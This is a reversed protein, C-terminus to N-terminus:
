REGSFGGIPEREPLPTVELGHQTARDLLCAAGSLAIWIVVSAVSWPAVFGTIPIAVWMSACYFCHLPRRPGRGAGAGRLRSFLGFPGEERTLLSSLRWTAAAGVIFEGIM